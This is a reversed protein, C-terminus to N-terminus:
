KLQKKRLIRELNKARKERLTLLRKMKELENSIEFIKQSKEEKEKMVTALFEQYKKNKVELEQKENLMTTYKEKLENIEKVKLQLLQEDRYKFQVIFREIKPTIVARISFERYLYVVLKLIEIAEKTNLARLLLYAQKITTPLNNM